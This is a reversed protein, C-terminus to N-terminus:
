KFLRPAFQLLYQRWNCWLHGRTSEHYEHKIGMNNLKAVFNQNAEYLFDENGIAIWFLNYGVKQLNMLKGDIDNYAPVSMDVGSTNLGASFMGIYDFYTPHNLSIMLTHFGGMSLGAVARHQKDAITRYSNDIFNVIEPFTSEYVGSKYGPVERTGVPRFALNDSTEGPAAATHGAGNPMVVIMPEAKGEAILNDMIRVTLGLEVWATEDGGSGHLLYLVPYNKNEKDYFPPTYVSIRRVKGMANSHYWTTTLTGHPVDHVQYYDAPGGNIYFMSFIYDVDRRIFPNVPDIGIVGDIDFRYTYMESPLVPTTYEWVGDKGKKLDARGGKDAWDGIVTVKKAKEAKVRFTVSNDSNIQPSVIAAKQKNAGVNQQAWAGMAFCAVLALAWARFYTKVTKMMIM